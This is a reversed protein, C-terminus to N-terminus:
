TAKDMVSSGFPMSDVVSSAATQFWNEHTGTVNKRINSAFTSWKDYKDFAEKSM